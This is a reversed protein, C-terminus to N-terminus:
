PAIWGMKKSVVMGAIFLFLIAVPSMIAANIAHGKAAKEVTFAIMSIALAVFGVVSAIEGVLEKM